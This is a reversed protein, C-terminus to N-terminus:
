NYQPLVSSWAIARIQRDLTVAAYGGLESHRQFHGLMLNQELLELNAQRGRAQTTRGFRTGASAM